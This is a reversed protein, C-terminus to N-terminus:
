FFTVQLIKISRETKCEHKNQYVPMKETSEENQPSFSYM